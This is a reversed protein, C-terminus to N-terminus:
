QGLITGFKVNITKTTVHAIPSLCVSLCVTPCITMPYLRRVVEHPISSALTKFQRISCSVAVAM